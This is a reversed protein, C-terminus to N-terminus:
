KSKQKKKIAQLEDLIAFLAFTSAVHCLLTKDELKGFDVMKEEFLKRMKKADLIIM